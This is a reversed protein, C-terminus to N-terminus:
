KSMVPVDIVVHDEGGFKGGQTTWRSASYWGQDGVGVGMECWTM